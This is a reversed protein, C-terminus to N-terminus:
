ATQRYREIRLTVAQQSTTVWEQQAVGGLADWDPLPGQERMIERYAGYAIKAMQTWNFMEPTM